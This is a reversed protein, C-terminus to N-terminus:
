SFIIVTVPKTGLNIAENVTDVFINIKNGTIATGKDLAVAPVETGDWLVLTFNKRLPIVNSPASYPKSLV